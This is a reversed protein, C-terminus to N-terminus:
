RDLPSRYGDGLIGPRFADQRVFGRSPGPELATGIHISRDGSRRRYGLDPSLAGYHNESWRQSPQEVFFRFHTTRKELSLCYYPM